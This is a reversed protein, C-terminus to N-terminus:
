LHVNMRSWNFAKGVVRKRAYLYDNKKNDTPHREKSVREQRYIFMSKNDTSLMEKSGREQRYIFM